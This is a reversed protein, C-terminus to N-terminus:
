MSELQYTRTRWSYGIFRYQYLGVDIVDTKTSKIAYRGYQYHLGNGYRWVRVTGFEDEAITPVVFTYVDRDGVDPTREVTTTADYLM